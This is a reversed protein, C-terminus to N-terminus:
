HWHGNFNVHDSLRALVHAVGDEDNSGIVETARARVEATANAVAYCEDAVEFMPLDNANDGFM